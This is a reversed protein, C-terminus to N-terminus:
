NALYDFAIRPTGDDTNIIGCERFGYKQLAGQMPKNNEHTDIRIYATKKTCFDFCAKTLGRVSGDSAVRHVAGYPKDSHWAGQWIEQYTPDEGLIFAFVGAIQEQKVCVYFNGLEIDKRILEEPPYTQGWQSANGQKKMFSRALEYIGMIQELDKIEAKRIIM